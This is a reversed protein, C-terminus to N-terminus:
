SYMEDWKMGKNMRKESDFNGGLCMNNYRMEVSFNGTRWWWNEPCV